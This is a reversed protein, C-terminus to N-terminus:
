SVEMAGKFKALLNQKILRHQPEKLKPDRETLRFAEQRAVELLKLDKVLNGIKLEPLGHQRTGFFEGPGRLELDEQAIEFGDSTQTMVKLRRRSIDSGPNGLLICYSQYEGRGIRGRLQHLQALGFRQTDEILMVSANPIDIGVEIVTTSVLIDIQKAKFRRMVTEKQSGTMQGHILGVKLNPFIDRQLHEQMQTASKLELKESEEVLPYVIYVQRGKRIEQALFKYIGARRSPSVWYTAIPKRGPPMEDLVSINLDGYITLALTRPIPTATMVLLDAKLGKERLAKRQVVGFRHQEDIVILGLRGFEATEQILTHTGCIIDVKGDALEKRIKEKQSPPTSGILLEARVGLPVLFEQLTLYHQQALIETPAMIAGQYGDEVAKLLALMSIVTKGSGVDGQLLRNMPQDKKMDQFIEQIVRRQAETLEFPLMKLFNETLQGPGTYSIGELKQLSERRLAMALQLFFFEDFVLRQRAEKYNTRDAPFHISYIARPLDTLSCRSRIDPPLMEPLIKHCQDLAHKIITRLQRPKLGQTLSYTPVIRGSHISEKSLVPIDYVFNKIQIKSYSRQVTGSVVVEVGKRLRRHLYPQNYWDLYAIGTGDDIGAKLISMGKHPRLISRARVRGRLTAYEGDALSAIPKPQSRDSYARPFYYLLDQVTEMGLRNLLRARKPGVGKVYQVSDSLSTVM